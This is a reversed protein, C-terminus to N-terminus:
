LMHGRQLSRHRAARQARPPSQRSCRLLGHGVEEDDESIMPTISPDIGNPLNSQASYFKAM